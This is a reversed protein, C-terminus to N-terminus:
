PTKTTIWYVRAATGAFLAAKEEASAGAVIRKFANWLTRYSCLMGDVPFNSEFLCRNAGFLEICTEVYPGWVAALEQSGPPRLLKGYDFAALRMAQGGLKVTVNPCGALVQMARKWGGFVEDKRGAYPGYGLIGGMHGLIINAEPFRRALYIVEEIQTHFVWADFSLRLDVLKRFGAAYASSRFMDPTTGKGNGIIPDADWNGSGRVGRFRGGCAAIMAELVPGAADGLGLDAFGVIAAGVRTPGYQGSASMAAIGNAFEVEGLPRFEEPGEARLMNGTLSDEMFVTAVVNHGSNLDALLEDLMYRHEGTKGSQAGRRHWLHHHADIIPLGPELVPEVEALALWDPDPPVYRGFQTQTQM